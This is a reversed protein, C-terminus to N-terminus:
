TATREQGDTVMRQLMEYFHHTGWTLIGLADATDQSEPVRKWTEKVQAMIAAKKANGGIGLGKKWTTNNVTTYPIGLGYLTAKIGGLVQALGLETQRGRVFSIDEIYVHDIPYERNIDGFWARFQAILEDFRDFMHQGQATVEYTVVTGDHWASAECASALAVAIKKTSLDIGVLTARGYIRTYETVRAM